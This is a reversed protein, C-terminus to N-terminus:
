FFFFVRNGLLLSANWKNEVLIEARTVCCSSILCYSFSKMFGLYSEKGPFMIRTTIINTPVVFYFVFIYLFAIETLCPLLVVKGTFSCTQTWPEAESENCLVPYLIACYCNPTLDWYIGPDGSVTQGYWIIFHFLLSPLPRLGWTETNNPPSKTVFLFLKMRWVTWCRVAPPRNQSGTWVPLRSQTPATRNRARDVM